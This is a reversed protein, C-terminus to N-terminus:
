RSTSSRQGFSRGPQDGSEAIGAPFILSGPVIDAKHNDVFQPSRDRAVGLHSAEVGFDALSREIFPPQNEDLRLGEHIQAAVRHGRSSAPIVDWEVTKEDNIVVKIEGKALQAQA